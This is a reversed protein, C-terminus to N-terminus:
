PKSYLKKEQRIAEELQNFEIILANYKNMLEIYAAKMKERNIEAQSNLIFFDPKISEKIKIGEDTTYLCVESINEKKMYDSFQKMAMERIKDNLGFM